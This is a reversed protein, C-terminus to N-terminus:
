LSGGCGSFDDGPASHPIHVPTRLDGTLRLCDFTRGRMLELLMKDGGTARLIANKRMRAATLQPNDEVHLNHEAICQKLRDHGCKIVKRIQAFNMGRNLMAAIRAPDLPAPPRNRRTM